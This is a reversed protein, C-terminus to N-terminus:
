PAPVWPEADIAKALLVELPDPSSTITTWLGADDVRWAYHAVSGAYEPPFAVTLALDSGEVRYTGRFVPNVQTAGGSDLVNTWRGDPGLVLTFRGVNSGVAPDTVSAAAYDEASIDKTFTGTPFGAPPAVLAQSPAASGAPASAGPAGCGTAVALVAFLALRQAVSRAVV